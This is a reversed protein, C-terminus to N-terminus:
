FLLLLVYQISGSALCLALSSIPFESLNTPEKRINTKRVGGKKACTRLLFPEPRLNFFRACNGVHANQYTNGATRAKFPYACDPKDIISFFAFFWGVPYCYIYFCVWLPLFLVAPEVGASGTESCLATPLAGTKYM